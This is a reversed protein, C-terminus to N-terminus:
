LIGHGGEKYGSLWNLIAEWRLLAHPLPIGNQRLIRAIQIELPTDLDWRALDPTNFLREIGGDFVLCREHLVLAKDAIQLIDRMTHTSLMITVGDIKLRQVFRSLQQHAQPDLGAFPEDLLLIRPQVVLYSALAVRRKQGGSLSHLPRDVFQEFDLGVLRMAHQVLDRLRGQYGLTRAAYAIEDGVYREFFQAEPNQFVLGVQRRLARVDLTPQTLDFGAVKVGGQQPRLLGNMHQLMTSKGSGTHGVLGAAMGQPITFSIDELASQALPTGQLYTHSVHKFIITDVGPSPADIISPINENGKISCDLDSLFVQQSNYFLSLNPFFPQLSRAFQLLYPIDLGLAQMRQQDQYVVQPAGVMILHGSQFVLMRDATLTEDLDHTIHVITYGKKHLGAILALIDRRSRPDLMATTEDFILCNPHLALVGALAVRQTEGASLLYTQRLRLHAAGSLRLGEEVRAHIDTRSLSLNEPGFATDEEVQSAVIQDHPDQFILGVQRFLERSHDHARTDVGNVLVRGADPHILGNMLRAATTKGSGNAGIVSVYEGKQITFSVDNLAPIKAGSALPYAFSVHDFIIFESM